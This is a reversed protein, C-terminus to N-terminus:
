ESAGEDTLPVFPAKARREGGAESTAVARDLFAGDDFCVIAYLDLNARVCPGDHELAAFLAVRVEHVSM